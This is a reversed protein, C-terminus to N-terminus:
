DMTPLMASEVRITRFTGKGPVVRLGWQEKMATTLAPGDPQPPFVYDLDLTYRGTLGTHDETITGLLARAPPLSLLSAVTTMTVGDAIIGGVRYGTPCYAVEADDADSVPPVVFQRRSAAAAAACGPVGAGADSASLHRGVEEDESRTRRRRPGRGADAHRGTTTEHRIKLAFRDELLTQLMIRLQQRRGTGAAVGEVYFATKSVWDPGGTVRTGTNYGGNGYATYILQTLTQSPIRLRNPAAPAVPLPSASREALKITAAEFAPRQAAQQRGFLPAVSTGVVVLALSM